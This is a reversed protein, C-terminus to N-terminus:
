TCPASRFSSSMAGNTSDKLVFVEDFDKQYSKGTSAVILSLSHM